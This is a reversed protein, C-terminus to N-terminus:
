TLQYQTHIVMVRITDKEYVGTMNVAPAKTPPKCSVQNVLLDVDLCQTSELLVSYDARTAGDDLSSGQLCFMCWCNIADIAM